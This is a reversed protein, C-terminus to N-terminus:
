REGQVRFTGGPFSRENVRFFGAILRACRCRDEARVRASVRTAFAKM